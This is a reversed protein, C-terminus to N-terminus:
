PKLSFSWILKYIRGQYTLGYKKASGKEKTNELEGILGYKRLIKLYAYITKSRKGLRYALEEATNGREEISLLVKRHAPKIQRSEEVDYRFPRTIESEREEGAYKELVYRIECGTIVAAIAMTAAMVNTGPAINVVIQGGGAREKEKLLIKLMEILCEEFDYPNVPFIDVDAKSYKNRIERAIEKPEPKSDGKKAKNGLVERAPKGPLLVLRDFRIKVNEAPKGFLMSDIFKDVPEAIKGVPSVLINM